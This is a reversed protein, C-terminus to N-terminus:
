NAAFSATSVNTQCVRPPIDALTPIGGGPEDNFRALEVLLPWPRETEPDLCDRAMDFSVWGISWRVDEPAFRASM